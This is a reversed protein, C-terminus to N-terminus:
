GQRAWVLSTVVQDDPIPVLGETARRRDLGRQADLSGCGPAREVVLFSRVDRCAARRRSSEARDSLGTQQALFESVPTIWFTRSTTLSNIYKGRQLRYSLIEM